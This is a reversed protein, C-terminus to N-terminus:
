RNPQIARSVNRYVMQVRLLLSVERVSTWGNCSTWRWLIDRWPGPVISMGRVLKLSAVWWTCVEFICPNRSHSFIHKGRQFFRLWHLDNCAYLQVVKSPKLTVNLSKDCAATLMWISASFKIATWKCVIRYLNTAGLDYRNKQQWEVVLLLLWDRSLHSFCMLQVLGTVAVKRYASVIILLPKWFSGTRRGWLGEGETAAIRCPSTSVQAACPWMRGASCHFKAQDQTRSWSNIEPTYVCFISWAISIDM